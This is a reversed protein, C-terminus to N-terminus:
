TATRRRWVIYDLNEPTQGGARLRQAIQGRHHVGHLVVHRLIAELPDACPEGASNVFQVRRALAADDLESLLTHWRAACAAQRRALEAAPVGAPWVALGSTPRGEVRALWLESAGVLHAWLTHVREDLPELAALTRALRSSAWLDFEFLHRAERVDFM